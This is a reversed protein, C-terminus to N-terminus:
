ITPASAEPLAFYLESLDGLQAIEQAAGTRVIRGKVMVYARRSLALAVDMKQEVLLVTLGGQALGLLV